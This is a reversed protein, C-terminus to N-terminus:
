WLFISREGIRATTQISRRLTPTPRIPYSEELTIGTRDACSAAEDEFPSGYRCAATSSLFNEEHDKWTSSACRTTKSISCLSAVWRAVALATNAAPLSMAGFGSGPGGFGWGALFVFPDFASVFGLTSAVCGPFGVFYTKVEAVM